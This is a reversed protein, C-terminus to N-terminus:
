VLRQRGHFRHVHEVELNGAPDTEREANVHVVDWV